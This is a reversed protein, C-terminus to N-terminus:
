KPKELNGDSLNIGNGIVGSVGAGQIALRNIDIGDIGDIGIAVV